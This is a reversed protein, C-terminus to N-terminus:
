ISLFTAGPSPQGVFCNFCPAAALEEVRGLGRKGASVAKFRVHWGVKLAGLCAGFQHVTKHRYVQGPRLVVDSFHPWNVSDPFRQTELCFGHHKEYPKGTRGPATLPTPM